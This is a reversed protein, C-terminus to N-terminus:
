AGELINDIIRLSREREAEIIKNVSTFDIKENLKSMNNPDHVIREILGTKQLINQNRTNTGNKPLFEVFQTNLNIAFATGHFSDTIMMDANKIMSVFKQLDPMYVFKGYRGIQHLSASMRIVPLGSVESARKAFADLEPNNHIQYILIYRKKKPKIPGLISIWENLTLLLTPDLVTEPKMLGWGEIIDAASDERVYIRDYGKLYKAFIASLEDTFKTKGFSASFAIKKGKGVFDLFYASDYQDEGIPGWVQDSGTVFMDAEIDKLEATTTVRKSMKLYKKRWKDFQKQALIEGPWRMMIYALKKFPNKAWQEKKKVDRLVSKLGREDDRQYDIVECTAGARDMVTQTAITQLLSGYNSPGHRTIIDVNM